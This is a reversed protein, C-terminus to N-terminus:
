ESSVEAVTSFFAPHTSTVVQTCRCIRSGNRDKNWSEPFKLFALRWNGVVVGHMSGSPVLRSSRHLGSNTYQRKATSGRQGVCVQNTNNSVIVLVLVYNVRVTNRAINAECSGGVREPRLIDRIPKHSLIPWMGMSRAAIM